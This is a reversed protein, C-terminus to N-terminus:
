CPREPDFRRHVNSAATSEPSIRWAHAAARVQQEADASEKAAVEAMAEAQPRRRGDVCAPM